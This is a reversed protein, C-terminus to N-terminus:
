GRHRAERWGRLWTAVYPSITVLAFAAVVLPVAAVVLVDAVHAFPCKLLRRFQGALHLAASRGWEWSARRASRRTHCSDRRGAPEQAHGTEESYRAARVCPAPNSRSGPRRGRGKPAPATAATAAAAAKADAGAAVAAKEDARAAVAAKADAWGDEEDETAAGATAALAMEGMEPRAGGQM